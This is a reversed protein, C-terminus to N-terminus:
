WQTGSAGLGIPEISENKKKKCSYTGKIVKHRIDATKNMDGHKGLLLQRLKTYIKKPWEM